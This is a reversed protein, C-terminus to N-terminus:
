PADTIRSLHKAFAVPDARLADLKARRAEDLQGITEANQERLATVARDAGLEIAARAAEEGARVANLERRVTKDPRRLQRVFAGGLIAGAVAALALLPVYWRERLWKLAEIM